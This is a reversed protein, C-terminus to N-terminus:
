EDVWGDVWGGVWRERREGPVVVDRDEEEGPQGVGVLVGADDENGHVVPLGVWGNVWGKRRCVRRGKEEEMDVWGGVWGGMRVAHVRHHVGVVPKSDDLLDRIPEGGPLGVWGGVWGDEEIEGGVWGGAVWLLENWGGRRRGDVWGGVWGGVWREVPRDGERLDQLHHHAHNDGEVVVM